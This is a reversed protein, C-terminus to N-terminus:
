RRRTRTRDNSSRVLGTESLVAFLGAAVLIFLLWSGAIAGFVAAIGIAAGAYISNLKDRSSRTM